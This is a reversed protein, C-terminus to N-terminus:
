AFGRIGVFVLGAKKDLPAFCNPMGGNKLGVKDEIAL